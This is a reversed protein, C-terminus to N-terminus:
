GVPALDSIDVFGKAGTARTVATDFADSAELEAVMRLWCYLALWAGDAHGFYYHAYIGPARVAAAAVRGFAMRGNEVGAWIRPIELGATDEGCLWSTLLYTAEAQERTPVVYTGKHAWPADIVLPWPSNSPRYSPYYPNVVEIGVSNDNHQAAHWLEDELLDGHQYITGDAGIIFHVGLGRQVLVDVTQKSSATVTEHLILENVAHTRKANKFRVIGPMLYNQVVLNEPPSLETGGVIINGMGLVMGPGCTSAFAAGLKEYKYISCTVTAPAGCCSCESSYTDRKSRHFELLTHGKAKADLGVIALVHLVLPSTLIV